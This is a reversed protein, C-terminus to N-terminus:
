LFIVLQTRTTETFEARFLHGLAPLSGLIPVKRRVEREETKYLGGISILEGDKVELETNANRVAIIPNSIGGETAATFGTVTSVEPAVQLRVTDGSIMVPTVKLKVGVSKFVTSTSISGSVVTQTQIPLEEGTIINGDSGRRLVLNPSSLIRAKGRSELYRVFLEVSRSNNGGNWTRMYPQLNMSLGQGTRPNPAPSSIASAIQQVFAREGTPIRNYALNVEKEYDSDITLEVIRAEVLVQPVPQDVQAAIKKLVPLNSVVDNVVVLDAEDSESASGRSTLFNDLVRKLTLGRVHKCHHVFMDKREEEDQTLSGLLKEYESDPSSSLSPAADIPASATQPASASQNGPIGKGARREARRASREARRAESAYPTGGVLLSAALLSLLIRHKM